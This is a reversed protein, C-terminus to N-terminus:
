ASAEKRAAARKWYFSQVLVEGLLAGMIVATLTYPVHSDPYLDRASLVIAISLAGTPAYSLARREDVSVEAPMWRGIFAIAIRNGALRAALFVGLLAWGQWATPKWLAGAIIMLFYVTPRQMKDLVARVQDKSEGPLSAVILGAIFCVPIVALRLFSAMGACLAVSGLLIVIFPPGGPTTRFLSWSLVGMSAGLGFVIFLWASGPLQWAVVSGEPRFYVALLMLLAIGGLHEMKVFGVLRGAPIRGAWLRELRQIPALATTGCALAFVALDRWVVDQKLLDPSAAAVLAVAGGLALLVPFAMSTLVGSAAPPQLLLERDYGFGHRFGVWGLCFPVIPALAQIVTSTLVKVTGTAALLGLLVFLFGTLTTSGVHLRDELAALKQHGALYALVLLIVFGLVSRTVQQKSLKAPGQPPAHDEPSDAPVPLLSGPPPPLDQVRQPRQDVKPEEISTSQFGAATFALLIVCLGGFAM